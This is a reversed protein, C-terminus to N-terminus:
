KISAISTEMDHKMLEAKQCVRYTEPTMGHWNKFARIFHGKSSYGLSKGIGAVTVETHLLQTVAWTDRVEKLVEGFSTEDDKLRRQITRAGISIYESFEKLEFLGDRTMPLMIQKLTNKFSLPPRSAVMERVESWSLTRSMNKTANDCVTNSSFQGTLETGDRIDAIPVDFFEELRALREGQAAALGLHTPKWDPGEYLRALHILLGAVGDSQHWSGLAKPTPPQYRLQISTGDINCFLWSGTEHYRIARSARKLAEQLTTSSTVYRGYLGLESFPVSNGLIAGLLPQNTERAVAELFRMYEANPLQLSMDTMISELFGHRRFVQTVTNKGFMEQVADTIAKFESASVMPIASLTMEARWKPDDTGVKM